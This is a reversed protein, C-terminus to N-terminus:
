IGMRYIGMANDYVGEFVAKLPKCAMARHRIGRIGHFPKFPPKKFPKLLPM